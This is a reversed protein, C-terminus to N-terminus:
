QDEDDELPLIHEQYFRNSVEAAIRRVEPEFDEPAGIFWEGRKRQHAFREHILRETAQPDLTEYVGHLLVEVPMKIEVADFRKSPVQRTLGLKCVGLEEAHFIYVFGAKSHYSKIACTRVCEDVKHAFSDESELARYDEQSLYIDEKSKWGTEEDECEIVLKIRRVLLGHKPIDLSIQKSMDDRQAMSVLKETPTLDAALIRRQISLTDM